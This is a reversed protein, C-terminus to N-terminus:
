REAFLSFVISPIEPCSIRTQKIIDIGNQGPLNIDLVVFQWPSHCIEQLVGDSGSSDKIQISPFARQLMERVSDRVIPHDDVVLAQKM